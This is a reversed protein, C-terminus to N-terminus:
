AKWKISQIQKSMDSTIGRKTSEDKVGRTITKKLELELEQYNINSNDKYTNLLKQTASDDMFSQIFEKGLGINEVKDNIRTMFSMDTLLTKYISKLAKHVAVSRGHYYADINDALRNFFMQLFAYVAIGGLITLLSLENLNKKKRM